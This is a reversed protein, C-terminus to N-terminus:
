AIQRSPAFAVNKGITLRKSRFIAAFGRERIMEPDIEDQQFETIRLLSQVVESSIPVNWIPWTFYTDVSSRGKFMSTRLRGGAVASQFFPYAEIVLRNAGLVGGTSNRSNDSTPESWQYAHRRDEGPDLRLSQGAVPDSYDWPRLLAKEIHLVKTNELITRLNGIFYDSRTLRLQNDETEKQCTSVMDTGIATLYSCLSHNKPYEKGAQSFLIGVTTGAKALFTEWVLAPHPSKQGKMEEFILRALVRSDIKEAREDDREIAFAPVWTSGSLMWKMLVRRPGFHQDLMRLSGLSSIFGLPNTGDLGPFQHWDM